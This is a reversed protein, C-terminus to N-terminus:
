FWLNGRKLWKLWGSEFSTSYINNEYTRYVQSPKRWSQLEVKVTRSVKGSDCFNTQEAISAPQFCILHNIKKSLIDIVDNILSIPITQQTYKEKTKYQSSSSILMFITPLPVQNILSVCKEYFIRNM